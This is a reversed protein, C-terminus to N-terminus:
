EKQNLFLLHVRGYKRLDYVEVQVKELEKLEREEKDTEVIIIGDKELLDLAMILKVAEIAIDAEYPPDIFIINFKIKKRSYEELSRHFDQELIESKDLFKTKTLNQRIMRAAQHSKECFYARKAGRSIFEIGYQM